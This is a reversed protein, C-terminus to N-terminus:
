THGRLHPPQQSQHWEQEKLYQLVLQHQSRQDLGGGYAYPYPDLAQNGDFFGGRRGHPFLSNPYRGETSDSPNVWVDYTGLRSAHLNGLTENSPTSYPTYGYPQNVTPINGYRAMEGQYKSDWLMPFTIPERHDLPFSDQYRAYSSDFDRSFSANTDAMPLMPASPLPASYPSPHYNLVESSCYFDDAGTKHALFPSTWPDEHMSLRALNTSCIDESVWCSKSSIPVAQDGSPGGKKDIPLAWTRLSPAGCGYPRLTETQELRPGHSEGEESSLPVTTHTFPLSVSGEADLVEFRFSEHQKSDALDSSGLYNDAENTGENDWCPPYPVGLSSPNENRAAPKFVIVEDEEEGHISNELANTKGTASYSEHKKVKNESTHLPGLDRTDRVLEDRNTRVSEDTYFINKSGDYHIYKPNRDTTDVIKLAATLIRSKRVENENKQTLLVENEHGEVEVWVFKSFDLSEFNLKLPLFGYLECDEWLAVHKSTRSNVLPDEVGDKPCSIKNLLAVLCSFFYHVAGSCEPDAENMTEMNPKCVLWELFVLIAPLLPSKHMADYAVCRHIIRAMCGFAAHCASTMLTPQHINEDHGHSKPSQGVHHLTFILVCVIQLPRFSSSKAAEIQVHGESKLAVTLQEDNLSLLSELASLTSACVNHFEELGAKTFIISTMLVFRSWFITKPKYKNFELNDRVAELINGRSKDYVKEMESSKLHRLAIEKVTYDQSRPLSNKEFLLMLNDWANLFPSEVALSRVCHYLTLLEDSVYTALVALQNHPNGSAPWLVAARSYYCAAVSWNHNQIDPNGYLERYRALDGLYILCRHCSLRYRQTDASEKRSYFNAKGFMLFNKTFGISEGLKLILKEYSEMAESLFNKFGDLLEDTSGQSNLPNMCEAHSTSAQIRNRIEEIQKYHLRWLAHEVDKIAAFEHDKLITGEYSIRIKRHLEQLEPDLPGKLHIMTWLKKEAKVAEAFCRYADAKDIQTSQM